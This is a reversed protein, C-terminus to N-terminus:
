CLSTGPLDRDAESLEAKRSRYGCHAQQHLREHDDKASHLGATRHRITGGTPGVVLCQM